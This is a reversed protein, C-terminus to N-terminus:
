LMKALRDAIMSIMERSTDLLFPVAIIALSVALTGGAVVLVLAAQPSAIM